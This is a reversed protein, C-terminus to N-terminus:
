IFILFLILAITIIIKKMDRKYKIPDHKNTPNGM